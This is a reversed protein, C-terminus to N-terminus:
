DMIVLRGIKTIGNSDSILVNYVGYNLDEINMTFITLDKRVDFSKVLTGIANFVLINKKSDGSLIVNVEKKAPNPYLFSLVESSHTFNGHTYFEPAVRRASSLNDDVFIKLMARAIYAAEGGYIGLEYAVNELLSKESSSIERNALEKNIYIQSVIKRYQEVINEDVLSNLLQNAAVFDKSNILESVQEFKGVLEQLIVISLKHADNKMGIIPESNKFIFRLFSSRQDKIRLRFNEMKLKGNEM